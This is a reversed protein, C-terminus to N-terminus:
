GFEVTQVLGGLNADLKRLRQLGLLLRPTVLALPVAVDAPYASRCHVCCVLANGAPSSCDPLTLLYLDDNGGCRECCRRPRLDSEM